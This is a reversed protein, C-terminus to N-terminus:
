IGGGGGGERVGDRKVVRHLFSSNWFSIKFRNGYAGGLVM